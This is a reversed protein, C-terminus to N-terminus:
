CLKPKAVFFIIVLLAIRNGIKRRLVNRRMNMKNCNIEDGNVVEM